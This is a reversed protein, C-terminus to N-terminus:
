KITVTKTMKEIIPDKNGAKRTVIVTGTYDGSSLGSKTKKGIYFFQRARDKEMFNTRRAFINGEPDKIELSIADGKMPGYYSMWFTLAESDAPLTEPSSSDIKLGDINPVTNKFGAASISFHTYKYSGKDKWMNNDSINDRLLKNCAPEKQYGTFPDVIEGEFLVGFHLHPFEAAGSHGVLGIKEGTKIEQDEQVIISGKKMHCYITQWGDKHNILVGNGCGRNQAMLETIEEQSPMRDDMEDRLRLVKGDYAAAVDIGQEMIVMDRLAIDTGKHGDYSRPGCSYDKVANDQRDTDVHNVIWCDKGMDCSVPLSFQPVEQAIAPTIAFIAILLFVPFFVKKM